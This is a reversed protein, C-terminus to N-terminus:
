KGNLGELTELGKQAEISLIRIQQETVKHANDMTVQRAEVSAQFDQEVFEALADVIADKPHLVLHDRMQAILGTHGCVPCVRLYPNTLSEWTPKDDSLRARLEDMQRSTESMSAKMDAVWKKQDADNM